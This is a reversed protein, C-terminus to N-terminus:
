LILRLHEKSVPTHRATPTQTREHVPPPPSVHRCRAILHNLMFTSFGCANSMELVIWGYAWFDGSYSYNGKNLMQQVRPRTLVGCVCVCVCVLCEAKRVEPPLYAKLYSQNTNEPLPVQEPQKHLDFDSIILRWKNDGDSLRKAQPSWAAMDNM